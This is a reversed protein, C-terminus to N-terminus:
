CNRPKKNVNSMLFIGIQNSILETSKMQRSSHKRALLVNKVERLYKKLNTQTTQKNGM